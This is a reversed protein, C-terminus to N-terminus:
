AGRWVKLLAAHQNPRRAKAMRGTWAIVGRKAAANMRAGVAGSSRVPLGVQRTVDESTFEERSLALARITADARQAWTSGSMAESQEAVSMGREKLKEGFAENQVGAPLVPETRPYPNPPRYYNLDPEPAFFREARCRKCKGILYKESLGRRLPPLADGEERRRGCKTCAFQHHSL